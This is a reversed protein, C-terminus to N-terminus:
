ISVRKIGDKMLQSHFNLLYGRKYRLLKLYTIVQALHIPHLTEVCKLELLLCDEVILDARFGVGIENGKYLM